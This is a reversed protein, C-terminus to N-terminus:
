SYMSCVKSKYQMPLLPMPLLPLISAQIISYAIYYICKHTTDDYNYAHPTPVFIIIASALTFLRMSMYTSFMTLLYHFPICACIFLNKFQRIYTNVM